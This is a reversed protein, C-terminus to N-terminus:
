TRASNPSSRVSCLFFILPESSVLGGFLIAAMEVQLKNYLQLVNTQALIKEKREQEALAREQEALAREQEALAREQETLAREQQALWMWYETESNFQLEKKDM